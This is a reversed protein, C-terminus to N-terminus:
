SLIFTLMRPLRLAMGWWGIKDIEPVAAGSGAGFLKDGWGSPDAGPLVAGAAFLVSLNAYVRHGFSGTQQEIVARRLEGDLRLVDVARPGMARMGELSLELSLPTMPGPFAEATNIATYVPWDPDVDTDFEGGNASAPHRLPGDRPPGAAGAWPFRWPLRVRRSGLFIHGHNARGFDIVCDRSSWAPAFGLEGLRTTDVPAQQAPLRATAWDPILEVYRKGLIAAVQRLPLTDSAALNVPGTWQPHEVADGVFRGVDDPHVFQAINRGNKIGLIVPAAFRRQTGGVSDRGMITTTRVLLAGSTPVRQEVDANAGHRVVILQNTRPPTPMLQVIVDVDATPKQDRPACHVQHGRRQLEAAICVGFDESAGSVLVRM